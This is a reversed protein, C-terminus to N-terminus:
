MSFLMHTHFLQYYGKRLIVPASSPEPDLGKKTTTNQPITNSLGTEPITERGAHNASSDLLITSLSPV